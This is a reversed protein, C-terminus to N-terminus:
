YRKAIKRVKVCYEKKGNISNRLDKSFEDAVVKLIKKSYDPGYLDKPIILKNNKNIIVDDFKLECIKNLDNMEPINKHTDSKSPRNDWKSCIM